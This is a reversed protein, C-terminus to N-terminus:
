SMWEENKTILWLVDKSIVRKSNDKDFKMKVYRCLRYLTIKYIINWNKLKNLILSITKLIIICHFIDCNPSNRIVSFVHVVNFYYVCFFCHCTIIDRFCDGLLMGVFFIGLLVSCVRLSVDVGVTFIVVVIFGCTGM